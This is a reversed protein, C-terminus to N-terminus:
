KFVRVSERIAKLRVVEGIVNDAGGVGVKKSNEFNPCCRLARGRFLQGLKEPVESGVPKKMHLM